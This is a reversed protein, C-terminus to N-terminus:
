LFHVLKKCFITKMVNIVNVGSSTSYNKVQELVKMEAEFGRVLDEHGKETTESLAESKLGVPGIYKPDSIAPFVFTRAEDKWGINM